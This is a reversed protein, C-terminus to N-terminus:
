HKMLDVKYPMAERVTLELVIFFFDSYIEEDNDEEEVDCDLLNEQSCMAESSGDISLPQPGFHILSQYSDHNNDLTETDEM